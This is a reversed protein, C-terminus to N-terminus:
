RRELPILAYSPGPVHGLQRIRGTVYPDNPEFYLAMRLRQLEQDEDGVERYFRALQLQPEVTQGRDIRAAILLAEEAGDVNGLKELYKAKLFYDDVRNYRSVQRDIFALLARKDGSQYLAEALADAYVPNDPEVDNALMLHERARGPEGMALLTRGVNYQAVPQGPLRDAYEEYASLAAYYDGKGYAENGEARLMSLDRQESCGVTMTMLSLGILAMARTRRSM